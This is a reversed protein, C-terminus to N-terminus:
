RRKNILCTEHGVYDWCGYHTWGNTYQKEEVQSFVESCHKKCVQCPGYKASSAEWSKIKYRYKSM